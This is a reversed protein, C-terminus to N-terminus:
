KVEEEHICLFVENDSYMINAVGEEKDIKKYEIREKFEGNCKAKYQKDMEVLAKERSDFVGFIKSEIEESTDEVLIWVKM